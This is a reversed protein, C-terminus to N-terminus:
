AEPNREGFSYKKISNSSAQTQSSSGGAAQSAATNASSSWVYGGIKETAKSIVSSITNMAISSYTEMEDSFEFDILPQSLKKREEFTHDPEILFGKLDDSDCMLRHQAVKKLFTQLGQKRKQIEDSEDSYWKGLASKPPIPPIICAPFRLKLM